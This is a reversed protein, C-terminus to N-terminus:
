HCYLGYIFVCFTFRSSKFMEEATGRQSGHFTKHLVKDSLTGLM